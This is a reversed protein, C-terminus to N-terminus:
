AFRPTEGGVADQRPSEGFASDAEDLKVVPAPVLMVVQRRPDPVLSVIGVLRGRSQDGVQALQRRSGVAKMKVLMGIAPRTSDITAEDSATSGATVPIRHSRSRVMAM